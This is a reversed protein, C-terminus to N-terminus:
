FANSDINQLKNNIEHKRFIKQDWIPIKRKLHKDGVKQFEMVNIERTLFGNCGRNVDVTSKELPHM